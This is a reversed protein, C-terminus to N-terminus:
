NIKTHADGTATEYSIKNHGIRNAVPDDGSPSSGSEESIAARLKGVAAVDAGFQSSGTQEDPTDATEPEPVDLRPCSGHM